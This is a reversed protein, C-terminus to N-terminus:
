KVEEIELACGGSGALSLSLSKRGALSITEIVVPYPNSLSSESADRYVTARYKKAPSLFSLDISITRAAENTIAGVFWRNGSRRAITAYEGIKGNLLISEEWDAPTNKLFQFAPQGEYNEKLDPAMQLPSYLLIFLALQHALTSHVRVIGQPKKLVITRFKSSDANRYLLDFIGPNYDMPGALGRTFPIVCNHTATVGQSWAEWEMGRVGERTMMNPYTRSEGTAMIPEHVDLMIQYKAATEVVKQYHNVMYQGHRLIGQPTLQGVYGTKVNHIGLRNYLAFAEEMQREYNPIDSATENHVIVDVGKAHAYDAVEKLDYDPYSETFSFNKRTEWGKNWGEALVSQFNNAAAFDIYAKMNATTAGHNPGPFWTWAGLHMGWWIGVYKGPKIWKTDAIKCPENLNLLLNSHVLADLNPAILVTRWPSILSDKVRVKVADPWPALDSKLVLGTSDGDKVLAMRAYNILAAEHISLYIKQDNSQLTVPTNATRLQSLMGNYYVQEDTNFNKNQWWTKMDEALRFQTQEDLLRISDAGSRRPLLYRFAVGDNFVRFQLTLHAEAGLLTVQLQNYDNVIKKNAGWVATWRETFRKQQTSNITWKKTADNETVLGLASPQIISRGFAKVSYQPRGDTNSFSLVIKQDPSAVIWSTKQAAVAIQISVLLLSFFLKM